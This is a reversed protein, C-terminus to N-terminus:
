EAHSTMLKFSLIDEELWGSIPREDGSPCLASAPSLSLGSCQRVRGLIHTYSSSHNPTHHPSTPPLSPPILILPHLRHPSSVYIYLYIISIPGICLFSSSQNNTQYSPPYISLCLTLHM